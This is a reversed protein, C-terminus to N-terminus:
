DAAVHAREYQNVAGAVRAPVPVQHRGVQSCVPVIHYRGIQRSVVIGQIEM